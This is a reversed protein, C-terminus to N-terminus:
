KGGKIAKILNDYGLEIYDVKITPIKNGCFQDNTSNLYLIRKDEVVGADNESSHISIRGTIEVMGAIKKAVKETINPSYITTERGVRDKVTTAMEHSIFVINYDSNALKRLPYLFGNRVIDYGKAFGLDGEHDVKLKKCYYARAYQYVDETLDLVLTKFSHEGKLFEDVYNVFNEWPDTKGDGILDLAPSDVYKINGDTNIMLADPFQNAFTTKGINPEGYIWMKVSQTSDRLVKKNEPLAM